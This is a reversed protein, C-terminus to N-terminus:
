GTRGHRGDNKRYGGPTQRSHRHRGHVSCTRYPWLPVIGWTPKVGLTRFAPARAPKELTDTMLGAHLTDDSALIRALASGNIGFGLEAMPASGAISAGAGKLRSILTADFVACFGSLAKSGADTPWDRVSLDPQIIVSLGSLPGGSVPADPASPRHVFTDTTM